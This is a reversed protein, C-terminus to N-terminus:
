SGAPLRVDTSTVGGDGIDGIGASAGMWCGTAESTDDLPLTMQGDQPFLEGM